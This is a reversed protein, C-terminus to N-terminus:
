QIVKTNNNTATQFMHHIEKPTLKSGYKKLVNNEKDSWIYKTRM